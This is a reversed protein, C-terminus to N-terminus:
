NEYIIAFPMQLYGKQISTYIDDSYKIMNELIWVYIEQKYVLLFIKHVRVKGLYKVWM